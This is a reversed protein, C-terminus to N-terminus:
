INLYKQFQLKELKLYRNGSLNKRLQKSFSGAVANDYCNGRRSMSLTINHEKAVKKNL